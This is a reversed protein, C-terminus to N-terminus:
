DVDARRWLDVKEISRIAVEAIAAFAVRLIRM